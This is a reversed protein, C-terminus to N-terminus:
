EYIKITKIIDKVYTLNDINKNNFSSYLSDLKSRNIM